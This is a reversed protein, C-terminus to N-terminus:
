MAFCQLMLVGLGSTATGGRLDVTGVGQEEGGRRRADGRGALRQQRGPLSQPHLHKWLHAAAPTSMYMGERQRSLKAASPPTSTLHM